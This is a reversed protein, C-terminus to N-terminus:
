EESEDSPSLDEKVQTPKIEEYAPVKPLVYECILDLEVAPNQGYRYSQHSLSIPEIPSVNCELVSIQNHLYTQERENGDFGYFKHEKASCLEKIFRLVQSEDVVVAVEFHVVDIDDNSLRGTCPTTLAESLETVYTPYEEEKRRRGRRASTILGTQRLQFGVSMIRKVPAVLINQAGENM